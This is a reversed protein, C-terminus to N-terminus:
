SDRTARPAFLLFLDPSEEHCDPSMDVCTHSNRGRPHFRPSGGQSKAAVTRQTGSGEGSASCSRFVGGLPQIGDLPAGCTELAVVSDRLALGYGVLADVVCAQGSVCTRRQEELGRLQRAGQKYADTPSRPGIVAIAGVDVQRSSSGLSQRM